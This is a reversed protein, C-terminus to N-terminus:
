ILYKININYKVQEEEKELSIQNKNISCFCKNDNGM